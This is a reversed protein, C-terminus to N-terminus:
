KYQELNQIDIFNDLIWPYFYRYYIFVYALLLNLYVYSYMNTCFFM